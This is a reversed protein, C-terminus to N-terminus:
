HFISRATDFICSGAPFADSNKVRRSFFADDRSAGPLGSKPLAAAEGDGRRASENVEHGSKQLRRRQPSDEM